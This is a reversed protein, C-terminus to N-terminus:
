KMSILYFATRQSVTIHKIFAITLSSPETKEMQMNSRCHRPVLSQYNLHFHFPFFILYILEVKHNILKVQQKQLKNDTFHKLFITLLNKVPENVLWCLQFFSLFSAEIENLGRTKGFKVLQTRCSVSSTKFFDPFWVVNFRMAKWQTSLVSLCKRLLLFIKNQTWSFFSLWTQFSM